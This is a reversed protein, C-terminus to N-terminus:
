GRSGTERSRLSFLPVKPGNKTLSNQGVYDCHFREAHSAALASAFHESVFVSGPPTAPEIRAAFTIETGFINAQQLYPDKGEYVPGYHGGIRLTLHEPLKLKKLDIARFSRQLRVAMRAAEAIEEYALFLGDGWTNRFAPATKTEECCTALRSLVSDIFVPIQGESLTGYGRVDAFLMAMLRRRKIKQSTVQGASPRSGRTRVAAPFPLNIQRRETKAWLKAGHATGTAKQKKGDWVLFQVTETELAQAKIVALGMAIRNSFSIVAHDLYDLNDTAYHVTTAAARCAQFRESWPDGYPALSTRIFADDPVPLVLHLEGGKALLGEAILIDSGAACAGYGIGIGEKELQADIQRRMQEVTQQDLAGDAQGLAFMHGAFHAVKPPRYPDLWDKDKGLAELVVALQHLTTARAALNDPDLTIACAFAEEAEVREGLLLHAEARTAALYYGAEGHRDKHKTLLNSLIEEALGRSGAKDGSLLTLTARNIASYSGGTREYAQAYKDAARRALVRRRSGSAELAADKLLRGGLALIDEHSGVGDLGLRQYELRAQEVAGSRLLSLTARHKLILAEEEGLGDEQLMETALDYAGLAEGHRLLKDIKDITTM